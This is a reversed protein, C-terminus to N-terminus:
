IHLWGSPGEYAKMVLVSKSSSCCVLAIRSVEYSRIHLGEDGKVAQVCLVVSSHLPKGGNGERLESDLSAGDTWSPKYRLEPHSAAEYEKTTFLVDLVFPLSNRYHFLFCIRVM